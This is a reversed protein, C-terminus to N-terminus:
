FTFYDPVHHRDHRPRRADLGSEFGFGRAPDFEVTYSWDFACVRAAILWAGRGASSATSTACGSCWTPSSATTTPSRRRPPRRLLHRGEGSGRRQPDPASRHLAHHGPLAAAHRRGVARVRHRHRPVRQPRRHRRPPLLVGDARPRAPRHRPRPAKVVDTIEERSCTTSPSVLGRRSLRGRSRHGPAGRAHPAPQGRPVGRDALGHPAHARAPASRAPTGPSTASTRTSSSASRRNARRAPAGRRVAERARRRTPPRARADFAFVDM